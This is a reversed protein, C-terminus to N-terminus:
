LHEPRDSLIRLLHGTHDYMRKLVYVDLHALKEATMTERLIRNARRNYSEDTDGWLRQVRLSSKAPRAYAARLGALGRQTVTWAGVSWCFSATGVRAM